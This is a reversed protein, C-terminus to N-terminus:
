GFDDNRYASSRHAIRVVAVVLRGDDISYIVRYDGIRLCWWKSEGSLRKAAPPRPHRELLSVAKLVRIQASRDLRSLQKRAAGSIRVAYARETM